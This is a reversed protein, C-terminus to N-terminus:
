GIWLSRLATVGAVWAVALVASGIAEVEWARQRREPGGDWALGVGLLIVVGGLGAGALAVPQAGAAVLTVLAAAVVVVFLVGHLRRADAPGLRRVISDVGAATDREHDAAANAIALAAGALMAVPVLVAFFAPLEGVAGLWGYVPLLPIGVAFPLWSWATGKAFRDYGYGIGLVIAALAVTPGGSPLALGLGIAAAAAAAVRAAAPSVFGAPIPKPPTRGADNRADILDNVIGISVQLATMSVGLRLATLPDGAAVVAVLATVLGDLVSPFPHAIRM